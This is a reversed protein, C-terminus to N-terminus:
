QLLVLVNYLAHTWAAIGLGRALYVVGLVLGCLVRFVFVFGNVEEGLSGVHHAASFLMSSAVLALAAAWFKSFGFMEHMVWAGGGLLVLRFLLEEYVGAGLSLLLLRESVGGLALYAQITGCVFRAAVIVGSFMVLAYLLSELVMMGLFGLSLSGHRQVECLAFIAAALVVLNVATTAHTGLVSLPGTIWVYAMNGVPSGSYVVGFQYLLVLPMILAVSLGLSRSEQAYSVAEEEEQAGQQEQDVADPDRRAM